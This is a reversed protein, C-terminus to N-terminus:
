SLRNGLGFRLGFGECQLVLLRFDSEVDVVVGRGLMEVVCRGVLFWLSDGGRRRDVGFEDDARLGLLFGLRLGLLFWGEFGCFVLREVYLVLWVRGRPSGNEVGCAFFDAFYKAM